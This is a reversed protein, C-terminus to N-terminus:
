RSRAQSSRAMVRGAKASAAVLSVVVVAVAVPKKV